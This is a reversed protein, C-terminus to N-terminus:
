SEDESELESAFYELRDYYEERLISPYDSEGYITCHVLTSLMEMHTAACANSRLDTGSMVRKNDVYVAYIWDNYAYAEGLEGGGVAAIDIRLSVKDWTCVSPVEVSLEPDTLYAEFYDITEDRVITSESNAVALGLTDLMDAHHFESM